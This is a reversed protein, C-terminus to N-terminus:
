YKKKSKFNNKSLYFKIYYHAFNLKRKIDNAFMSNIFFIYFHIFFNYFNIFLFIIIISPPTQMSNAEIYNDSHM